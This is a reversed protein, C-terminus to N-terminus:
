MVALSDAIDREYLLKAIFGPALIRHGASSGVEDYSYQVLISSGVLPKLLWDQRRHRAQPHIHEICVTDVCITADVRGCAKNAYLIFGGDILQSRTIVPRTESWLCFLCFNFRAMFEPAWSRCITAVQRRWQRSVQALSLLLLPEGEIVTNWVDETLTCYLSVPCARKM